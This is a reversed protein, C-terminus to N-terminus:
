RPARFHALYQCREACNHAAPFSLRVAVGADCPAEIELAAMGYSNCTPVGVVSLLFAAFLAQLQTDKYDLDDPGNKSLSFLHAGQASGPLGARPCPWM